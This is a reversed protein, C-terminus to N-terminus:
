QLWACLAQPNGRARDCPHKACGGMSLSAFRLLVPWQVSALLDTAISRRCLGSSPAAAFRALRRPRRRVCAPFGSEDDRASGDSADQCLAAPNCKRAVRLQEVEPASSCRELVFKTLLGKARAGSARQTMMRTLCERRPVCHKLCM